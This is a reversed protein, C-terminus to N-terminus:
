KVAITLNPSIEYIGKEHNKMKRLVYRFFGKESKTKDKLKKNNQLEWYYFKSISKDSKVIDENDEEM